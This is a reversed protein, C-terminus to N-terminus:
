GLCFVTDIVETAKIDEAWRQIGQLAQLTLPCHQTMKSALSVQADRLLCQPLSVLLGILLVLLSYCASAHTLLNVAADRRAEIRGQQVNRPAKRPETPYMAQAQQSQVNVQQQANTLLGEKLQEAQESLETEIRTLEWHMAENSANLKISLKYGATRLQKLQAIAQKRFAQNTM